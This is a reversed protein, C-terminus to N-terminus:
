AAQDQDRSFDKKPYFWDDKIINGIGEVGGPGADARVTKGKLDKWDTVGAVELVRYVFHGAVGEMQYHKSTKPLQLAYGGFGQLCGGYDLYVWVSLFGHETISLCVDDIVANKIAM